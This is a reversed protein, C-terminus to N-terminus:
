GGDEAFCNMRRKFFIILYYRLLSTWRIRFCKGASSIIHVSKCLEKDKIRKVKRYM